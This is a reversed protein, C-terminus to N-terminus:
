GDTRFVPCIRPLPLKIEIRGKEALLYCQSIMCVSYGMIIRVIEEEALVVIPM